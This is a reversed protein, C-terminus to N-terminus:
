GKTIANCSVTNMLNIKLIIRNILNIKLHKKNKNKKTMRVITFTNRCVRDLRKIFLNPITDLDYEGDLASSM